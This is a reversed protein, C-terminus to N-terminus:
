FLICSTYTMTKPGYSYKVGSKLCVDTILLGCAEMSPFDRAPYRCPKDPYTCRECITCAGAGMPFCSATLMRVQRVLTEFRKKHLKETESITEADFDDDLSGTSQVLIGRDFAAARRRMAELSGVVPPCSWKKGYAFCKGSACMDRVEPRFVLPDMNLKGVHSFGIDEALKMIEETKMGRSM